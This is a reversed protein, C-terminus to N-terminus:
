FSVLLSCQQASFNLIELPINVQKPQTRVRGGTPLIWLQEKTMDFEFCLNGYVEKCGWKFSDNWRFCLDACETCLFLRWTQNERSLRRLRSCSLCQPLFHERSASFKFTAMAIDISPYILLCSSVINLMSSPSILSFLFLMSPLCVARKHRSTLNTAQQPLIYVM